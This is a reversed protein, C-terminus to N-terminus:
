FKASSSSFWTKLLREFSPRFSINVLAKFSDNLWKIAIMMMMMMELLEIGRSGSEKKLVSEFLSKLILSTVFPAREWALAFNLGHAM